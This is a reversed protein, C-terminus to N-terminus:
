LEEVEFGLAEYFGDYEDKGVALNAKRKDQLMQRKEHWDEDGVLEKLGLIQVLALDLSSTSSSPSPQPASEVTAASEVQQKGKLRRRVEANSASPVEQAQKQAQALQSGGPSSSACMAASDVEAAGPSGIRPGSWVQAPYAGGRGTFLAQVTDIYSARTTSRRAKALDSDAMTRTNRWPGRLPNGDVQARMRWKGQASSELSGLSSVEVCKPPM